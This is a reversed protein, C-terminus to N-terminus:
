GRDASWRDCLRELSEVARAVGDERGITIALDAARLRCSQNSLVADVSKALDRGWHRQRMSIGAGLRQVETGWFRQDAFHPIIIQPVGMRFGAATTGAGGHHILCAAKGRLLDHPGPPIIQIQSHAPPNPPRFWGRQIWLPKDKPWCQYLNAFEGALRPDNISGFSIVPVPAAVEPFAAAAAHYNGRFFGVAEVGPIIEQEPILEPSVTFLCLDAPQRLWSDMQVCPEKLLRNLKKTVYRDGLTLMGRGWARRWSEPFWSPLRPIPPPPYLEGPYTNHCFHLSATPIGESRAITRYFPFLYTVILADGSRITGAVAPLAENLWQAALRYMAFLLRDPRKLHALDRMLGHYVEAPGHPPVAQFGLGARVAAERWMESAMLTVRHGAAVLGEGLRLFPVTDGTSGHTIMVFHRSSEKM